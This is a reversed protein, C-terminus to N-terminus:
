CATPSAARRSTPRSRPWRSRSLVALDDACRRRGPQRAHRLRRQRRARRGAAAPGHELMEALVALRRAFGTTARTPSRRRGPADTRRRAAGAPRAAGVTQRAARRAARSSPTARHRARGARRLADILRTDSARRGLRRAGLADYNEPSSVAAVPVNAAALAPALSCDLSLGQLPNDAAGHRDLYRGSGASARRAPQDRRGGLLPALHLAVPQRRRLRDGPDRTVKGARHLDRLPAATPHWHLRNDETFADGPRRRRARADPRLPAYRPDGVPALLSLSDVGGSLFISVLVPSAPGAAARRSARRSRAGRWCRRRRLGAARARQRPRPVLPPSAPAPPCRCARSSRACAAAPRPRARAPARRPLLRRLRLHCPGDAPRTTPALRRDAPAPREPAARAALRQQTPRRDRRRRSTGAFAVLRSPRPTSRRPRGLVRARQRRPRGPTEAPYATRPRARRDDAARARLQRRGLPRAITNTDLWRKDDWGSVDPPYYLRQGAGDSLWVWSTTTDIARGRARLMGALSCPRRSSWARARTSSAALLLIAELVPRIQHGSGRLARELAAAVDARRRRRSSTAGCSPSSSRRTCRTRRRGARM